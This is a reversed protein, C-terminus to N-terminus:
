PDTLRGLRRTFAGGCGPSHSMRSSRLSRRNRSWTTLHLAKSALPNAASSSRRTAAHLEELVLADDDVVEAAVDLVGAGVVVSAGLAAAVVAGAVEEAPREPVHDPCIGICASVM